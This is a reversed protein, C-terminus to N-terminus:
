EGGILYYLKSAVKFFEKNVRTNKSPEWDYNQYVRELGVTYALSFGPDDIQDSKYSYVLLGENDSSILHTYRNITILYLEKVLTLDNSYSGNICHVYYTEPWEGNVLTHKGDNKDGYVGDKGWLSFYGNRKDKMFKLDPTVPVTLIGFWDDNSTIWKGQIHTVIKEISYRSKNYVLEGIPYKEFHDM